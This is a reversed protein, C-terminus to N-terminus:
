HGYFHKDIEEKALEMATKDRCEFRGIILGNGDKILDLDLPVIDYFEDDGIYGHSLNERTFLDWTPMIQNSDPFIIIVDYITSATLVELTSGDNFILQKGM